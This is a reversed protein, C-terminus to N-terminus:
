TLEAASAASGGDTVFLPVLFSTKFGVGPVAAEASLRWEVRDRAFETASVPLGPPIAFLVPLSTGDAGSPCKEVALREEQRWLTTENVRRYKGAGTTVIRVCCLAVSPEKKLELRRSVEIVGGLHGGIVGPLSAPLFRVRGFKRWRITERAALVLLGCGIAVFGLVIVRAVLPQPRSFAAWAAGFAMADWVLAFIWFAIWSRQYRPLIAPGRWARQWKWPQAPFEARVRAEEARERAHNRTFRFAVGGFIMVAAGLLGLVIVETVLTHGHERYQRLAANLLVAGMVFLIGAAVFGGLPSPKRTEM